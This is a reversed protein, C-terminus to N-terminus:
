HTTRPDSRIGAPQRRTTGRPPSGGLTGRENGRPSSGGSRGRKPRRRRGHSPAFWAAPTVAGASRPMRHRPARADGAPNEGAAAAIPEGLGRAAGPPAQDRGGRGGGPGPP